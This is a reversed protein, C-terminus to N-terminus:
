RSPAHLGRFVEELALPDVPKSLHGDMGVVECERVIDETVSATLAVIPVKGRGGEFTRIHRTAEFGNLEPMQLDMLILDYDKEEAREVAIRGNEALSVSLGMKELIRSLVLRNVRNDEVLLVRLGAHLGIEAPAEELAPGPEGRPLELEVTFTSGEDVRSELKLEGGMLGILRRSIALGLGTGGFRRSTSDDAQEFIEFIADRKEPPIGIGTDRCALSLRYRGDAQPVGACSLTVSGSDTFKIANGALNMLVQGLRTTDGTFWRELDEPYEMSIEIGKEEARPALLHTLDLLLERLDFPRNELVIKDAEIKSYDLIDDIIRLLAKGSRRLIGLQERQDGDLETDALLDAVGIIGTMPTRIEHSMNALFRGKAVSAAQSRLLEESLRSNLDHHRRILSLFFLPLFVLSALMGVSIMPNQRWFPSFLSLGGFGLIGVVMSATLYRSGYRMGYGVIIWLYLPYYLPGIEGALHMGLSLISLDSFIATARRWVVKGPRLRVLSYWVMGFLLYGAVLTLADLGSRAISEGQASRLAAIIVLAIATILIRARAQSLEEDIKKIILANADNGLKM